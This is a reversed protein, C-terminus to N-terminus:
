RSIEIPILVLMYLPTTVVTVTGVGIRGIGVQRHGDRTMLIVGLCGIGSRFGRAGDWALERRVCERVRQGGQTKVFANEVSYGNRVRGSM